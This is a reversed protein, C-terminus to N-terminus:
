GQSLLMEDLADSRSREFIDQNYDNKNEDELSYKPRSMAKGFTERYPNEINYSPFFASTAGGSWEKQM